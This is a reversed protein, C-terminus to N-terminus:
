FKLDKTVNILSNDVSDREEISWEWEADRRDKPIWTKAAQASKMRKAQTIDKDYWTEHRDTHMHLYTDRAGLKLVFHTKRKPPVFNIYKLYGHIFSTFELGNTFEETSGDNHYIVIKNIDM